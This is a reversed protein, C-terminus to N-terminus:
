LWLVTCINTAIAIHGTRQVISTKVTYLYNLFTQQIRLKSRNTEQLTTGSTSSSSKSCTKKAKLEKLFM